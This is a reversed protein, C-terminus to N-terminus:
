IGLYEQLEQEERERLIAQYSDWMDQAIQDRFAESRLKEARNPRTTALNGYTVQYGPIPDEINGTLEELDEYDHEMIFNHLAALAPPVRSQIALSFQPPRTLIDWRQKIVGFIREV